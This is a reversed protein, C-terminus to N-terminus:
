SQDAVQHCWDLHTLYWDVTKELGSAFSESPQWGLTLSLKSADIAYRTDHGPRDKVFGILQRFDSIGNPKETVKQNLLDCILSVVELNTMENMGGINYSEGLEGRAAVQCLAQAHDDVYLWDRIQKGDGYVPISKGQLANLLTVPILKEPYQYPGYNNSCNSLVVPLGYTRHWARVLHDAAAKSASYPSSPAYPSQESFYGTEDSGLDGFVEDTSVHHLRFRAAVETPLKRYYDLCQQLLEFTGVINTDIFARPGEISRDVHTEAALHIVLDIQHQRLARGLTDGDYIDAQIFHYNPDQAISELSLLNGAYTLKDYNVVRCGGLAILHRILASGIFGAGGTILINRGALPHQQSSNM